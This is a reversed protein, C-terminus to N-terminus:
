VMTENHTGHSHGSLPVARVERGVVQDAKGVPGVRVDRRDELADGGAGQLLARGAALRACLGVEVVCPAVFLEARPVIDRRDAERVDLEVIVRRAVLDGVLEEAEGVVAVAAREVRGVVREM